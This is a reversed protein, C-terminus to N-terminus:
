SCNYPVAEKRKKIAYLAAGLLGWTTWITLHLPRPIHWEYDSPWFLPTLGGGSADRSLHCLLALLVALTASWSRSIAGILLAAGSCFLISHAMPRGPLSVASSISFSGAAIFHDVDIAVACILAVLAVKRSVGFYFTLPSLVLIALSGHALPDLLSTWERKGLINIQLGKDVALQLIFCVVVVAFPILPKGRTSRMTSNDPKSVM